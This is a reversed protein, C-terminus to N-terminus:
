QKLPRQRHQRNHQDREEHPIEHVADGILTSSFLVGVLRVQWRAVRLRDLYASRAPQRRIARVSSQPRQMAEEFKAVAVEVDSRKALEQAAAFEPFSLSLNSPREPAGSGLQGRVQNAKEKSAM